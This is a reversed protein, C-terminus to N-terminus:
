KNVVVFCCLHVKAEAAVGPSDGRTPEVQGSVNLFCVLM